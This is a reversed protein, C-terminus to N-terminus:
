WRAQNVAFPASMKLRWSTRTQVGGQQGSRTRRCSVAADREVRSRAYVTSESYVHWERVPWFRRRSTQERDIVCAVLEQAARAETSRRFAPVGAPDSASVLNCLHRDCLAEPKGRPLEAYARLRAQRRVISRDPGAGPAAPATVAQHHRRFWRRRLASCAPGRRPFQPAARRNRHLAARVVAHSGTRADSAM